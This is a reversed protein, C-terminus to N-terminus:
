AVIPNISRHFPNDRLASLIEPDMREDRSTALLGKVKTNEGSMEPEITNTIRQLNGFDRDIDGLQM